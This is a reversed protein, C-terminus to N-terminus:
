APLTIRNVPNVPSASVAYGYGDSRQILHLHKWNIDTASGVNFSGRARVAVRGVHTGANKGESKARM